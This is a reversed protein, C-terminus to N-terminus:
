KMREAMLRDFQRHYHRWARGGDYRGCLYTIVLAIAAGLAPPLGPVNTLWFVALAIGGYALGMLGAHHYQPHEPILHATERQIEAIDTISLAVAVEM